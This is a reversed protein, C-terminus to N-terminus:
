QDEAKSQAGATETLWRFVAPDNSTAVNFRMWPCIQRNPRFVVGPALVVGQNSPMTAFAFADDIDPFRAWLYMGSQPQHFLQLGANELAYVVNRRAGDLNKHIRHLLKRYYGETLMAHLVREIFVCSTISSLLKLNALESAITEQAAVFGVRLSGSLTKSFSRVYIVRKLQDLAGLRATPKSQLDAFVDDEVILFDYKEALKLLGFAVHLDLDTGTPNHVASQTFFVRPRHMAALAELSDLDPGNTNRPVGVLQAGQQRLCGHLNYYGPDDVLVADGFRIFKRAILDLAHSASQTLVIHNTHAAIGLDSLMKALHDRLPQYGFPSGYEILHAGSQRATRAVIQRAWQQDLWANPLHGSALMIGGAPALQRRTLWTLEDDLEIKPLVPSQKGRDPAAVFFGAGRRAELHGLAVLRDYAEVVTFRSISCTEALKRVSPVKMGSRLQRNLIKQRISEVVQDVLPRGNGPEISISMM